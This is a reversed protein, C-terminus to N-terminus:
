CRGRRAKLHQVCRGHVRQKVFALSEAEIQAAILNIYNSTVGHALM